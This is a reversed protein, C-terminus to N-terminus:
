RHCSLNQARGLVFLNKCKLKIELTKFTKNTQKSIKNQTTVCTRLKSRKGSSGITTDDHRRCDTTDNTNYDGACFPSYLECSM